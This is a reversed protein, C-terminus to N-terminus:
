IEDCSNTERGVWIKWPTSRIERFAEVSAKVNDVPYTPRHWRFALGIVGGGPLALGKVTGAIERRVDEPTGKALTTMMDASIKFCTRGTFFGRYKKLGVAGIQRVELVDLHFRDIGEFVASTDGDFLAGTCLGQSAIFGFLEEYRPFFDEELVSPAIMPGGTGAFEDIVSVMHVGLARFKKVIAKQYDVIRSFLERVQGADDHLRMFLGDYGMLNFAILFPGPDLYGCIFRDRYPRLAKEMREFFPDATDPSPFTYHKFSGPKDLPKHVIVYSSNEEAPIRHVCGWEDKRLIQGNETWSQLFTWHYTVELSDFDECGPLAQVTLPNLTGYADYVGPTEVVELPLIDPTNFKIARKVREIHDM